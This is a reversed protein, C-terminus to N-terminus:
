STITQIDGAFTEAQEVVAEGYTWLYSKWRSGAYYKAATCREQDITASYVAQCGTMADKLYLATAVFADANNWPSPPNDGTISSVGSVYLEWTSPEFQAPGMAGGYVGDANACSVMMTSPDLGLSSTIQLFIPINSPSMASKYSCQGVNQGLASERDLIALIFAPDIGTADSALKAYQYADGFTLQGGGLLQFIQNRIQAASAQTQTLLTQYKSEEGQTATLLQSKQSKTSAVSAAQAQAYAAATAADSKSAEFDQEQGTLQGQLDTLQQVAVRLNDQILTINQTDSWFDSLQPNALFAEVLSTQDNEYMAQLLSGIAAQKGQIDGQTTTIQSQTDSIQSDLQEITLNTAQIQLNLSAVKDNLQDIQSSLTNGQQKYSTIQGQYQDIQTELQQLQDQLASREASTDATSSATSATATGSTGTGSTDTSGSTSQGAARTFVTPAAASGFVFFAVAGTVILPKVIKLFPITLRPGRESLNLRGNPVDFASWRGGPADGQSAPVIDGLVRSKLPREM